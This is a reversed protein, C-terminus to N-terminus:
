GRNGEYFTSGDSRAAQQGQALLLEDIELNDLTMHNDVGSIVLVTRRTELPIFKNIQCSTTIAYSGHLFVALSPVGSGM